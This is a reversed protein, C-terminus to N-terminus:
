QIRPLLVHFNLSALSLGVLRSPARAQRFQQQHEGGEEREVHGDNDVVEPVLLLLVPLTTSGSGSPVPIKQQLRIWFQYNQCLCIFFKYSNKFYM